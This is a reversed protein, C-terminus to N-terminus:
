TVLLLRRCVDPFDDNGKHLRSKPVIPVIVNEIEESADHKWDLSRKCLAIWSKDVFM